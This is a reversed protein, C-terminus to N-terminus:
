GGTILFSWRPGGSLWDIRQSAIFGKGSETGIYTICTQYTRTGIFWRQIGTRMATRVQLLCMMTITTIVMM